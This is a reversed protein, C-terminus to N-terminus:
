ISIMRSRHRAACFQILFVFMAFTDRFTPLHKFIPKAPLLSLSLSLSVPRRFLTMSKSSRAFVKSMKRLHSGGMNCRMVKQDIINEKLCM